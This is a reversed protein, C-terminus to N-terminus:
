VCSIRRGTDSVAAVFRALWARPLLCRWNGGAVREYYVNEIAGDGSARM